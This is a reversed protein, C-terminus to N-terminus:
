DHMGVVAMRTGERALFLVVPRGSVNAVAVWGRSALPAVRPPPPGLRSVADAATLV